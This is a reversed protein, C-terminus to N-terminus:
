VLCSTDGREPESTFVSAEPLRVSLVADPGYVESATRFGGYM